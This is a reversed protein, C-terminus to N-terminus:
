SIQFSDVAVATNGGGAHTVVVQIGAGVLHEILLHGTVVVQGCEVHADFRSILSRWRVQVRTLHQARIAATIQQVLMIRIRGRM